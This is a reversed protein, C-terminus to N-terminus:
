RASEILWRDGQKRLTYTVARNVQPARGTKVVPATRVLAVVTARQGDPAIDIRNITIDQDLSVYDRFANTLARTDVSPYVEQVAAPRLSALASAYKQMLQGILDRDDPQAVTPVVPNQVVAEATGPQGGRAIANVDPTNSPPQDPPAAPGVGGPVEAVDPVQQSPSQQIAAQQTSGQVPNTQTTSTQQPQGGGGRPSATPNAGSSSGARPTLIQPLPEATAPATPMSPSPSPQDSARGGQAGAPIEREPPPAQPRWVMLLLIGM